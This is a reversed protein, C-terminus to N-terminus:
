RSTIRTGNEGNVAYHLALRLIEVAKGHGGDHLLIWAKYRQQLPKSHVASREECVSAPSTDTGLPERGESVYKHAKVHEIM